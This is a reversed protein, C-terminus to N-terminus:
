KIKFVTIEPVNFMRFPLKTNGMGSNVYLKTKRENDFDYMGKTYKRAYHVKVAPGYFPIDIQGGHSHGALALDIPHKKLADIGDPEHLLLINLNNKEVNKMTKEPDFNGFMIDDVGFISVSKNNNLDIRAKDNILLNFNSQELIKSYHKFAGGGYDHNGYVAFNGYESKINKLVGSVKDIDEYNWASDILDGTFLVLDPEQENIKKVAKELDNISYFDGLQTDTFQVVKLEEKLDIKADIEIEKVKLMKPEVLVSYMLASTTICFFLGVGMIKNKVKM